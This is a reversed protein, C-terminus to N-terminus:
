IRGSLLQILGNYVNDATIEEMCKFHGLPCRNRGIHTCPRCWLGENQLVLSKGRFPFFGLEESTSGFIAAVPTDVATAMHMLASDNSILAAANKIVAASELLNLRGTFNIVKDSIELTSFVSTDEKGGLLVINLNHNDIIKQILTKFKELPWRKTFHAAGAAIAIYKGEIEPAHINDGLLLELGLGDDKVAAAEATKLYRLPVPLIKGYRNIKLYILLARKIKLKDIQGKKADPFAKLLYNSRFNNQLDFIYDYGKTKLTERLKKLGPLKTSTDYKYIHDINPNYQLLEYFEKKLVYDIAAEPYAKRVQRVFASTLIIDGISGFRIILINM